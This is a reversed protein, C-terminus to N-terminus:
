QFLRPIGDLLNKLIEQDHGTLIDLAAINQLREVVEEASEKSGFAVGGGTTSEKLWRHTVYVVLGAVTRRRTKSWDEGHNFLVRELAEAVDAPQAQLDLLLNVPWERPGQTVESQLQGTTQFMYVILIELM